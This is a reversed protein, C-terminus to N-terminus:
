GLDLRLHDGPAARQRLLGGLPPPRRAAAPRHHHQERRDHNLGLVQEPRRHRHPRHRLVRHVGRPGQDGDRAPRRLRPPHTRPRHQLRRLHGGPRRGSCRLDRSTHDHHSRHPHPHPHPHPPPPPHTTSARVATAASPRAQSRHPRGGDLDPGSKTSPTSRRRRPGGSGPSGPRRPSRGPGAGRRGPRRARARGGPQALQARLDDDLGLLLHPGRPQPQGGPTDAANPEVLLWTGNDALTSRVYAAVGVPDGMDHLCDFFTVLDYGSGPTAARAHRGRVHLPGGSRGRGSGQPGGRDVTRARRERRVDREPLGEGDPDDVLRLRLRRRCGPRRDRARRRCRGAGAALRRGPQRHLEAPLVPRHRRVPQPRARGLRRRAGTRFAEAILDVDAITSAALQLGGPAFLPNDPSTLAFAQEETLWFTRREGPRVGRLREGGPRGAVRGPLAGPLRDAGRAAGATVPRSDGMAVYLGLRDGM